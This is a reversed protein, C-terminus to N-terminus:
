LNTIRRHVDGALAYLAVGTGVVTSTGTSDALYRFFPVKTKYSVTRVTTQNCTRVWLNV